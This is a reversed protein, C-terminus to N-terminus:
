GMYETHCRLVNSIGEACIRGRRGRGRTGSLSALSAALFVTLVVHLLKKM